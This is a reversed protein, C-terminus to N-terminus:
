HRWYTPLFLILLTFVELRGVLMGFVGLWKVTASMGAFPELHRSAFDYHLPYDRSQQFWPASVFPLAETLQAQEPIDANIAVVGPLSRLARVQAEDIRLAM